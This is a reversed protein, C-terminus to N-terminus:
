KYFERYRGYFEHFSKCWDVIFENSEFLPELDILLDRTKINEVIGDLEEFVKEKSSGISKFVEENPSVRKQMYWILDYFDRGKISVGTNGKKYIRSICAVMKSAMLTELDYHKVVCSYIDQTYPTLETSFKGLPKENIEVKVHLKENKLDSLGLDNLVAFKLTCRNIHKGKQISASVKGFKEIKFYRLITEKLNELNIPELTEFDLYESLRNINYIKRLCTGGYFILHKYKEDTYIISLIINQLYEKLLNKILANDFGKKRYEETIIRLKYTIPHM